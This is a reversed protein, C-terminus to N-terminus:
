AGAEAVAWASDIAAAYAAGELLCATVITVAPVRPGGETWWVAQGDAAEPVPCPEGVGFAESVQRALLGPEVDHELAAMGAQEAADLFGGPSVAPDGVAAITLPFYRGARDVSPMWLGLVPQAGCCGPPLRFRWVPAELWADTWDAAAARTQAIGRQCWADWPDVFTRPLGATVFDGRAPLKGFFGVSVGPGSM